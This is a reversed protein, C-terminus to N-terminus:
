ALGVGLGPRSVRAGDARLAIRVGLGGTRRAVACAVVAFLGSAALLLAAVGFATFLIAGSRQLARSGHVIEDLTKVDRMAVDPDVARLARRVNPVLALPDSGGGRTGRTRLMVMRSAYTFQTYPTYFSARNPPRDPPEYMVDRVVGVVEVSSDATGVAGFWV